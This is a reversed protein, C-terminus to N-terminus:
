RLVEPALFAVALAVLGTAATYLQWLGAVEIPLRRVRSAYGRLVQALAFLSAVLGIVVHLAGYAVLAGVVADHAHTSPSLAGATWALAALAALSAAASLALLGDRAMTGLVGGR